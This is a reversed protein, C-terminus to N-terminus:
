EFSSLLISAQLYYTESRYNKKKEFHLNIIEGFKTKQELQHLLSIIGNYGGEIKFKYTNIVMDQEKIQHPELFSVIKLNHNETYSNITSLMSNQVSNGNLQYKILLSDYYKEKQKLSALQLPLNNYIDADKKLSKYDNHLQITNSIAYKYAIIVIMVFGIVLVTNKNRQKM